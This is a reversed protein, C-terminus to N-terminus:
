RDIYRFDVSAFLSQVIEAWRDQLTEKASGDGALHELILRLETKEPARGLILRFAREVREEDSGHEEALLRGAMARGREIVFPHNMLFLAQKVDTSTNRSGSVVSTDAFDFVELIDPLANRLVPIYVSRRLDEHAFGYDAALGAPISSGGMRLELDGSAWLMTDRLAEADLRRRNGRGFMRNEPDLKEDASSSALQYTRSMTVERILSKISWGEEMLRTALYDLLEAHSPRDGTTGFNETSRVIGAGFLWHWVRNAMVRATLRTADKVLWEALERRGSGNNSVLRGGGAAGLFGRAVRPGVRHVSGREHVYTDGADLSEEVSLVRPRRPGRAQAETLEREIRKLEAEIAQGEENASEGTRAAELLAAREAPIWQMADATVYGDTGENSILVFGQGNQEFRHQGLSIFRGQIEPAERQNVRLTVEGEASFVTVPVSTARNLAPVYAMRVEYKGAKLGEPQFTLTKEGKSTNLDHLFGTGIYNGTYQSSAWTGVRKADKDDVVWGPLQSTQLVGVIGSSAGGRVQKLEKLERIRAQLGEVIKEHASVRAEAEPSLPLPREIWNSVNADVLTKTSRLIGAMAYYDTTPIPDFKHDHCRACGLTQGLFARGITDLQEDVVDMRLQAKDQEELNTNGLALFATAILKRRKEELTAGEILDGAIQERIFEDFPTGRNFSEIVYDRYRWAERFILGRLTVSEGFRAVDLWHRGWREGFQPSALLADVRRIWADPSSDQVFRDVEEPTPPLGTLDYYIRRLLAAREAEATPKMGRAELKALIFRDINNAPWQVDRVEPPKPKTLPEYAWLSEPAAGARLLVESGLFLFVLVM